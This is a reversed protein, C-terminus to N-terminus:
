NGDSLMQDAFINPSNLYTNFSKVIDTIENSSVGSLKLLKKLYNRAADIINLYQKDVVNDFSSLDRLDEAPDIASEPAAEFEDHIELPEEM